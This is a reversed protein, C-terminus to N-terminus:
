YGGGEAMTEIEEIRKKYNENKEKEVLKAEEKADTVFPLRGLLTENSAIDKLNGIMQSIELENAPLNYTFIIDVRHSPVVSMKSLTVLFNNYAEFRTRFSKGFIRQKNKTKQEFGLIKYRIAVGSLNSGFADDSLDPTLSTQYIDEKLDDRLVKIDAENMIKHLYKADSGIEGMLIREEKLDKAQESDIELGSLFLFANVFQEKDNVRDSMILNYAEIANINQEFEGQEEENNRHEILPVIGFYHSQTEKLEMTAFNDLDSEYTWIYSEDYVNCVVGTCNGDIDYRRYYHVGFLPKKDATQSYCVFASKPNIVASRPKSNENAYILEYTHGFIGAQKVIESDISAIDQEFYEDKLPEIDYEESASYTVPNGVLYSHAMDVIYKAHNVVIRNNAAGKSKKTRKLIEHKGIYCDWLKNYRELQLSHKEILKALLKADLGNSILGEDIIM